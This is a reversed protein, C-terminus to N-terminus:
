LEELDINLKEVIPLYEMAVKKSCHLGKALKELKEDDVEKKKTFLQPPTIKPMTKPKGSICAFCMELLYYKMLSFDQRKVIYTNYLDALALHEMANAREESEFAKPINEELWLFLEDPTKDSNEMADKAVNIQTTYLLTRMTEFIDKVRMRPYLQQVKEYTVNPALVELDILAARIDGDCIRALQNIAKEEFKIGEKRCVNKLFQAIIDYRVKYLKVIKCQKRIRMLKRDYPNACTLITPYPIKTVDIRLTYADVDEILVLKGKYFLSRQESAKLVHSANADSATLEVLEYNLEKALLRPIVSKGSGTPGALLLPPKGKKAWELIELIQKRNGLLDRLSKPAYKEALM